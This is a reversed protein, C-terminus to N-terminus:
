GVGCRSRQGLEVGAEPKLRGAALPAGIWDSLLRTNELLHAYQETPEIEFHEDFIRALGSRMPEDLLDLYGARYGPEGPPDPADFATARLRELGALAKPDLKGGPAFQAVREPDLERVVRTLHNNLREGFLKGVSTRHEGDDEPSWDSRTDLVRNIDISIEAPSSGDSMKHLSTKLCNFCDSCVDEGPEQMFCSYQLDSLDAYRQDLLRQIQFQQLSATLGAYYIGSPATLASLARQTAGSTVFHESQIVMGDRRVSEQTEAESALFVGSAGRLWGVVWCVSFYLLTDTLESVALWYRAAAPHNNVFCTRMNSSVEVHEFGTRLQAEQLVERFRATEFEISGERSSKTTVLVPTVGIERLMAMQVLSDRGGSFSAAVVGQPEAPSLEGAPPGTEVLEVARVTREAFTPGDPKDLDNELTWRAADIMRLWFEREGTPLRRPLVVRCPPQIAWHEHLCIFMVRLWVGEPVKSIDLSKPFSLTFQPDRYFGNDPEVSWAFDVESGRVVPERLRIEIM